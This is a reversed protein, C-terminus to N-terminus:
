RGLRLSEERDVADDVIEKGASPVETAGRMLAKETQAREGRPVGHNCRSGHSTLSVRGVHTVASILKVTGGERARSLGEGRRCRPGARGEAEPDRHV